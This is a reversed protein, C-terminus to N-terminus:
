DDADGMVHVRNDMAKIQNIEALLSPQDGIISQNQITSLSLM